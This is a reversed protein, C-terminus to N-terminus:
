GVWWILIFLRISEKIVAPANGELSLQADPLCQKLNSDFTEYTFAQRTEKQAGFFFLFRSRETFAASTGYPMKQKCDRIASVLGM